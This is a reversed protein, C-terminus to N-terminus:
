KEKAAHRWPCEKDKCCGYKAFAYCLDWSKSFKDSRREARAQEIRQQKQAWSSATRAKGAVASERDRESLAEEAAPDDVVADDSPAAHRRPAVLPLDVCADRLFDLIPLLVDSGQQKALVERRVSAELQRLATSSSSRPSCGGDGGEQRLEVMPSHEPYYPPLSIDVVLLTGTDEHPRLHVEFQLGEPRSNAVGRAVCDELHSRVDPTLVCLEEPFMAEVVELEALAREHLECTAWAPVIVDSLEAASSAEPPPDDCRVRGKIIPAAQLNSSRALKGAIPAAAV